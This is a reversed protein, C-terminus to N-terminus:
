GNRRRVGDVNPTSQMWYMSPMSCSPQSTTYGVQKPYSVTFMITHGCASLSGNLRRQSLWHVDGSVIFRVVRTGSPLSIVGERKVVESQKGNPTNPVNM